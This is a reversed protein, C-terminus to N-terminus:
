VFINGLSILFLVNRMPASRVASRIRKKQSEIVITFTAWAPEQAVLSIGVVDHSSSSIGGAIHVSFDGELQWPVYWYM